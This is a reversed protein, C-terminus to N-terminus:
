LFLSNGPRPNSGLGTALEERNIFGLTEISWECTSELLSEQASDMWKEMNVHMEM